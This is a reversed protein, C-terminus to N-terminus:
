GSLCLHLLLFLAFPVHLESKALNRCCVIILINLGWIVPLLYGYVIRCGFLTCICHLWMTNASRILFTLEASPYLDTAKERGFHFSAGTM